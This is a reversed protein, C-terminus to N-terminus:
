CYFCSLSLSFEPCTDTLSDISEKNPTKPYLTTMQSTLAVWPQSKHCRKGKRSSSQHHTPTDEEPTATPQVAKQSQSWDSHCPPLPKATACYSKVYRKQVSPSWARQRGYHVRGAECLLLRKLGQLPCIHFPM